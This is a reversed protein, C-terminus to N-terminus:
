FLLKQINTFYNKMKSSFYKTTKRYLSIWNLYRYEYRSLFYRPEGTCRHITAARILFSRSLGCPVVVKLTHCPFLAFESRNQQQSQERRKREEEPDVKKLNKAQIAKTFDTSGPRTTESSPLFFFFFVFLSDFGSSCESPFSMLKRM